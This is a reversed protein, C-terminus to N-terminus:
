FFDFMGSVGAKEAIQRATSGSCQPRGCSKREGDNDPDKLLNMMAKDVETLQRKATKTAFYCEENLKLLRTSKVKERSRRKCINISLQYSYKAFFTVGEVVKMRSLLLFTRINAERNRVIYICVKTKTNRRFQMERYVVNSMVCTASYDMGM